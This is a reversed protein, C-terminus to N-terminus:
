TFNELLQIFVTVWIPTLSGLFSLFTVQSLYGLFISIITYECFSRGNEVHALHSFKRLELSEQSDSLVVRDELFGHEQAPAPCSEKLVWTM